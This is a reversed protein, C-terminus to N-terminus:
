HKKNTPIKKLYFITVFIARVIIASIIIVSMFMPLIIIQNEPLIKMIYKQFGKILCYSMFIFYGCLYVNCLYDSWHITRKQFKEPVLICAFFYIALIPFIVVLLMTTIQFILLNM